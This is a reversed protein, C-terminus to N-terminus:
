SSHHLVNLLYATRARFGRDFPLDPSQAFILVSLLEDELKHEVPGRGVPNVYVDRLWLWWPAM